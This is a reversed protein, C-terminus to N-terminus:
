NNNLHKRYKNCGEAFNVINNEEMFARIESYEQQSESTANSYPSSFQKVPKRAIQTESFTLQKPLASLIDKLKNVVNVEVDNESYTITAAMSELAMIMQYLAEKKIQADTLRGHDYLDECFQKVEKSKMEAAVKEANALKAELMKIQEIMKLDESESLEEIETEVNALGIESSWNDGNKTLTFNFLRDGGDTFQGTFSETEDNYLWNNDATPEPTISVIEGNFGNGEDIIAFALWESAKEQLLNTEEMNESYIKIDALAKVAPPESGLLALHRLYYVNETPNHKNGPVYFGCSRKKLAGSKICDYTFDDVEINAFLSNGKVYLDKVWGNALQTKSTVLRAWNRDNSHGIVIPAEHVKPDYSDAIDQLDQLEYKSTYGLSDSFEGERFIEVNNIKQM